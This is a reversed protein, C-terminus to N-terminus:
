GMVLLIMGVGMLLVPFIRRSINEKFFLHGFVMGYLISTNNAADAYSVFSSKITLMLAVIKVGDLLGLPMIRIANKPQLIRKLDARNKWWAIPLISVSLGAASAFTYFSWSSAEIGVKSIAFILGYLVTSSLMFQKGKSKLMSKFPHFVDSNGPEFNLLYAGIIILLIGGIGVVGPLEGNIFYSATLTSVASFNFLPTVLSIDELQLAKTYLLLACTDLVVRALLVLWFVGAIEPIGMWWALGGLLFLSSTVWFWTVVVSDYHAMSKKAFANTLAEALASLQSYLLWM